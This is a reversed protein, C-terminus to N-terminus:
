RQRLDLAEPDDEDLAGALAVVLALGLPAMRNSEPEAEPM